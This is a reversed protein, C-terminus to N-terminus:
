KRLLKLKNKQRQNIKETAATFATGSVKSINKNMWQLTKEPYANYLERLTWGVGKQVYYEPDYLLNEVLPIIKGFPLIKKKTRTYYLLSVISQRRKWSNKDRNWKVLMAYVEDPYIELLRTYIKALSDCHAWDSVNEQWSKIAPWLCRLKESKAIFTECYFFAQTRAYYNKSYKWTYDWVAFQNEHPLSSFSYKESFAKRLQPITSCSSIKQEVEKMYTNHKHMAQLSIRNLYIIQCM